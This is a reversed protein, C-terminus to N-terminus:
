QWPNPNNRSQVVEMIISIVLSDTQIINGADAPVNWRLGLYYTTCPILKDPLKIGGEAVIDELPKNQVLIQEDDELINDGDDIWATFNINKSLEGEGQGPTDCTTDIDAEPETCGYEWDQIDDIRLRGWAENDNVHWSITVEGTDGPKIDCYKATRGFFNDGAGLDKLPVDCAGDDCKYDIKLDISGATFTNGTSTETDKFYAMTAGIVVASVIGIISLGILIKKGM